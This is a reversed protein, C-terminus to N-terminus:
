LMDKLERSVENLREDILKELLKARDGFWKKKFEKRAKDYDAYSTDGSIYWDYEHIVDLLDWLLNSLEIDELVNTPKNSWDFVINKFDSDKYDFHGGSM